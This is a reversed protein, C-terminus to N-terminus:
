IEVEIKGATDDSIQLDEGPGDNNISNDSNFDRWLNILNM